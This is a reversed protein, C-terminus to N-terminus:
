RLLQRELERLREEMDDIRELLGLVLSTAESDLDFALRLGQARHALFAIRAPFTWDEIRPADPELAGFEVLEQLEARSLGSLRLMDTLALRTTRDLLQVLDDMRNGLPDNM